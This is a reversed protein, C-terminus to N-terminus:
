DAPRRYLRPSASARSGTPQLHLQVVSRQGTRSAVADWGAGSAAGPRCWGWRDKPYRADREHQRRVRSPTAPTSSDPPRTRDVGSNAHHVVRTARTFGDARSAGGPGPDTVFTRFLDTGDAPVPYEEPMRVILDPPGLRWGESWNPLPPLASPDGEPAGDKIWRQLSQLEPDTLRRVSQFDGKGPVPKWPPM